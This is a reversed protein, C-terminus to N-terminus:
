KYVQGTKLVLCPLLYPQNTKAHLLHTYSVPDYWDWLSSGAYGREITGVVNDWHNLMRIKIKPADRLDIKDLSQNTQIAKLLGFSGYLLGKDSFATIKIIGNQNKISYAEPNEQHTSTLLELIIQGNRNTNTTNIEKNLLGKLGSKLEQM